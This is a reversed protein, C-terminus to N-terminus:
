IHRHSKSKLFCSIQEYSLSFLEFVTYHDKYIKCSMHAHKIAWQEWSKPVRHVTAGWAGGDMSNELCAYQLPNGNGGGPCRGSGPIYGCRRFELRIRWWQVVLSARAHCTSIQSEGFGRVWFSLPQEPTCPPPQSYCCLSLSLLGGTPSGWPHIFWHWPYYVCKRWMFYLFM